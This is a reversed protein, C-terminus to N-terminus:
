KSKLRSPSLQHGDEKGQPPKFQRSTSDYHSSSPPYYPSTASPPSFPLGHVTSSDHNDDDPSLFPDTSPAHFPTDELGIPPKVDQPTPTFSTTNFIPTKFHLYSTSTDM